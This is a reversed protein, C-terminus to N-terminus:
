AIAFLRESNGGLLLDVTEQDLGSCRIKSLGCNPYQIPASMGGIVRKGGLRLTMDRVGCYRTLSATGLFLNELHVALEVLPLFEGANLNEVLFDVEPYASVVEKVASVPVAPLGWNMFLRIPICVPLSQRAAEALLDKLKANDASLSFSHYFPFLKLAKAGMQVLDVLYAANDRQINTPSISVAPFLREPHRDAAQFVMENGIQDDYLIGDLSCIVAKDIEWRDMQEVLGDGLSDLYPVPWFPWNGVYASSDIIM